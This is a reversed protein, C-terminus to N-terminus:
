PESRKLLRGLFGVLNKRPPPLLTDDLRDTQLREPIFFGVGWSLHMTALALPLLAAATDRRRFGVVVSGGVITLAYALLLAELLWPFGAVTLAAGVALGLILGPAALHRYRISGPHKMLVVSKGRGYNFYQRALAWMSGRPRYEVVLEPDFWVTKGGKRLRYNLEYDENRALNAYGGGLEELTRRSFVGLFATDAAGEQGGLRHRSDGVGLLTTMAIAVTREFLTTGVALQRGGVNAAGTRKLTQLARSIYGPPLVVHADCRVIFDGTATQFAANAGPVLVREPNSILKVSPHAQRILESMTPTECGDAVIVEMEGEYDQAFVSDLTSIITAEADRAPIIVSVRPLDHSSGRSELAASKPHESTGINMHERTNM